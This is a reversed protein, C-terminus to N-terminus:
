IIQCFLSKRPHAQDLSTFGKFASRERITALQALRLSTSLSMQFAAPVWVSSGVLAVTVPFLPTLAKGPWCSSSLKAGVFVPIEGVVLSHSHHGQVWFVATAWWYRSM